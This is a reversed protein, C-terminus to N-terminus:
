TKEIKKYFSRRVYLPLVSDRSVGDNLSFLIINKENDYNFIPKIVNNSTVINNIESSHGKTSIMFAYLPKSLKAYISMEGIDTIGISKLYRNILILQYKNKSDKVVICFDCVFDCLYSETINNIVEDNLKSINKKEYIHVLSIRKDSDIFSTIWSKINNEFEIKNM